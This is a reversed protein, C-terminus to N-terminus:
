KKIVKHQIKTNNYTINFIYIGSSFPSLDIQDVNEITLVIEGLLNTIDIKINNKAAINIIDTTPNPYILIEDDDLDDLGVFEESCYDYLGECKIDWENNCCLPDTSIVWAYCPDNL